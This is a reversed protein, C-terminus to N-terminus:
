EQVFKPNSIKAITIVFLIIKITTIRYRQPQGFYESLWGILNTRSTILWSRGEQKQTARLIFHKHEESVDV